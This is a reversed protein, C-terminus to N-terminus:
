NRQRVNVKHFKGFQYPKTLFRQHASM